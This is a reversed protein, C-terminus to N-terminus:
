ETHDACEFELAKQRPRGDNVGELSGNGDRLWADELAGLEGKGQWVCGKGRKKAYNANARNLINNEETAKGKEPEKRQEESAAIGGKEHRKKTQPSSNGGGSLYQSVAGEGKQRPGCHYGGV